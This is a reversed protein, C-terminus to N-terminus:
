GATGPPAHRTSAEPQACRTHQSPQPQCRAASCARHRAARAPRQCTSAPTRMLHCPLPATRSIARGAWRRPMCSPCHPQSPAPATALCACCCGQAPGGGARLHLLAGVEQLAHPGRALRPRVLGHDRVLQALPHHPQLRQPHVHPRVARPVPLSRPPCRWGPQAVRLALLLLPPHGTPRGSSSPPHRTHQGAATTTPCSPSLQAIHAHERRPHGALKRGGSSAEFDRRCWWSTGPVQGRLRSHPSQRGREGAAQTHLLLHHTTPHKIV